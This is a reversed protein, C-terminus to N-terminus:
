TKVLYGRRNDYYRWAVRGRLVLAFFAIPRLLDKFFEKGPEVRQITAHKCLEMHLFPSMNQFFDCNVTSEMAMKVDLVNRVSPDWSFIRRCKDLQRKTIHWRTRDLKRGKNIITEISKRKIVM